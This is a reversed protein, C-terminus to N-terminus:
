QLYKADKKYKILFVGGHGCNMVANFRNETCNSLVNYLSKLKLLVCAIEFCVMESVESDIM